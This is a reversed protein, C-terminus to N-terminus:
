LHGEEVLLDKVLLRIAKRLCKLCLRATNSERSPPQGVMVVPSVDKGCEDCHEPGCLKTKRLVEM